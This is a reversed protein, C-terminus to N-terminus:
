IERSKPAINRLARGIGGAPPTRATATSELRRSGWGSAKVSPARAGRWCGLTVSQPAFISAVHLTHHHMASVAGRAGATDTDIRVTGVAGIAAAPQRSIASCPAAHAVRGLPAHMEDRSGRTSGKAEALHDKGQM